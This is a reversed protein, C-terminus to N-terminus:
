WARPLRMNPLLLILLVLLACLGPSRSAFVRHARRTRQFEGPSYITKQLIHFHQVFLQCPRLQFLHTNGDASTQVVDELGDPDVPLFIDFLVPCFCSGQELGLHPLVEERHLLLGLLHSLCDVYSLLFAVTEIENSM